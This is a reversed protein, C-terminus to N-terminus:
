IGGAHDGQGSERAGGLQERAAGSSRGSERTAGERIGHGEMAGGGLKGHGGGLRERAAVSISRTRGRYSRV